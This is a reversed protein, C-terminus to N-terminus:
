GQLQDCLSKGTYFMPVCNFSMFVNRTQESLAARSDCVGKRLHGARRLKCDVRETGWKFLWLPQRKDRRLQNLVGTAKALFNVAVSCPRFRTSHLSPKRHRSLDCLVASIRTHAAVPIDLADADVIFHPQIVE